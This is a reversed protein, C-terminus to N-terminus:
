WRGVMRMSAIRAAPLGTNENSNKGGRVGSPTSVSNSVTSARFGSSGDNTETV